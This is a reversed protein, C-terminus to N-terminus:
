VNVQETGRRSCTRVTSPFEYLLHRKKKHERRRTLRTRSGRLSTNKSRHEFRVSIITTIFTSYSFHTSCLPKSNAFPSFIGLLPPRHVFLAAKKLYIPCIYRFCVTELIIIKVFIKWPFKKNKCLAM